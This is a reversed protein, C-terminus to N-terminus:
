SLVAASSYCQSLADRLEQALEAASQHRGNPDMNMAKMCIQSLRPDVLPNLSIPARPLTQTRLADYVRMLSCGIYPWNGSLIEYITAGASFIDSRHDSVGILREPAMYPATGEFSEPHLMFARPQLFRLVTETLPLTALEEPSLLRQCPPMKTMQWPIMQSLWQACGFDFLRAKGDVVFVNKPKVDLHYIGKKHCFALGDLVGCFLELYRYREQLDSPQLKALAQSLNEAELYPMVIYVGFKEDVGADLVPVINPHQLASAIQCERVLAAQARISLEQAVKVAVSGLSPSDCHFVSACGGEGITSLVSLRDGILQGSVPPPRKENSAFDIWEDGVARPLFLELFFDAGSDSAAMDRALPTVPTDALDMSEFKNLSM